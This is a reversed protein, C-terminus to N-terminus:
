SRVGRGSQRCFSSTTIHRYNQTSVSDSHGTRKWCYQGTTTVETIVRAAGDVISSFSRRLFLRTLARFFLSGFCSILESISFSIWCFTWISFIFSTTLANHVTHSVSYVQYLCPSPITCIHSVTYIQHLNQWCM